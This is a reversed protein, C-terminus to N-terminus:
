IADGSKTGVLRSEPKVKGLLFKSLLRSMAMISLSPPAGPSVPFVSADCVYLNQFETRFERDTYKGMEITGGPHGGAWKLESLSSERAGGKLMIEKAVDVGRQMRIIDSSSMVKSTRENPYIEGIDDEALKVFLGMGRKVVPAKYWNQLMIGPRVANMVCYTGWAGSNGIMFGDSDAYSEIAHSFTQENWQGGNKDKSIGYLITMPDMFFRKGVYKVGSRLLVGPSGIGGASLIVNEAKIISGNDLEVGEIKTRATNFIFKKVGTSARLTAGYKEVAEDIYRRTTWKADKHCGLMCWDCGYECKDTDVFKEQAEFPTGLKEAAERMKLFSSNKGNQYFKEPLTKVGIEKKIDAAESRFDIGMSNILKDSPEFVNGQYIMSSGGVTIGREMVVGEKSRNFIFCRESLRAGFPFNLLRKHYAGKELILVKKGARALELAVPAGGPGTGIVIYEYSEKM